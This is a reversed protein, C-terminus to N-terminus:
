GYRYRDPYNQIRDRTFPTLLKLCSLGPMTFPPAPPAPYWWLPTGFRLPAGSAVFNNKPSTFNIIIDGPAWMLGNITPGRFTKLSGTEFMM